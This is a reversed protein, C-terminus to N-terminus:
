LPNNCCSSFATFTFYSHERGWKNQTAVAQPAAASADSFAHEAVEPAAGMGETCRPHFKNQCVPDHGEAHM